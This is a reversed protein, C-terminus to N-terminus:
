ILFRKNSRMALVMRYLQLRFVDWGILWRTGPDAFYFLDSKDIILRDLDLCFASASASFARLRFDKLMEDLAILLGGLCALPSAWISSSILDPHVQSIAYGATTCLLLFLIRIFWLAM